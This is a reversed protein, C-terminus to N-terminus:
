KRAATPHAPGHSSANASEDKPVPVPEARYRIKDQAVLVDAASKPMLKPAGIDYVMAMDEVALSYRDPMGAMAARANNIDMIMPVPDDGHAEKWVDLEAQYAEERAKQVEPRLSKHKSPKPGHDLMRVTDGPLILHQRITTM